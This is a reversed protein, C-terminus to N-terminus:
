GILKQFEDEGIVKVGLDEAKKLKSGAKDGALLFDTEKSVSTSVKGGAARIKEAAEERSMGSLTGTLVFTKGTLPGDHRKTVTMGCEVGLEALEDLM